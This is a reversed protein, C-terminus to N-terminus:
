LRGYKEDLAELVISTFDSPLGKASRDVSVKKFWLWRNTDVYLGVRKIAGGPDPTKPLGEHSVPAAVPAAAAPVEPRPAPVAPPAQERAKVVPASPPPAVRLERTAPRGPSALMNLVDDDEAPPTFSSRSM